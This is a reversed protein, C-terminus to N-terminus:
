ELASKKNGREFYVWGIGISKRKKPLFGADREKKKKASEREKGREARHILSESM